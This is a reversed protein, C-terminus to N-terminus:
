PLGLHDDDAAGDDERAVKDVIELLLKDVAMDIAQEVLSEHQNFCALGQDFNGDGLVSAMEIIQPLEAREQMEDSDGNKGKLGFQEKVQEGKACKPERDEMEDDGEKQQEDNGQDDKVNSDKTSSDTDDLVKFFIEYVRDDVVIDIADPIGKLDLVAVQLRVVGTNRTTVM